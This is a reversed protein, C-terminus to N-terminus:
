YFECWRIIVNVHHFKFTQNKVKLVNQLFDFKFCHSINGTDHVTSVDCFRKEVKQPM